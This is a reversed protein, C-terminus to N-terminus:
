RQRQYVRVYDVEFRAPFDTSSSDGGNTGGIALNLIMHHLERFPNTGDPNFTQTVDITNLLRGDVSLEISDETWDMRWVHFERAWADGGLEAIPLKEADWHQEWRGGPAKWCANALLDGRYYEMMDIEGSGPWPRASGVTWWAPWLGARTDIRGRMEFRGYTWEHLGATKISSSTYEAHSRAERWGSADPDYNPNRVRERRGEIVLVGDRVEVNEPQYWQAERNRVFGREHVWKTPDPAGANDFEEAWVLELGEDVYAQSPDATGTHQPAIGVSGVMAAAAVLSCGLIAAPASVSM